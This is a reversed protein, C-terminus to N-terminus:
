ATYEAKNKPLPGERGAPELTMGAIESAREAPELASGAGLGGGARRHPPVM